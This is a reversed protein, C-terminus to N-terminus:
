HCSFLPSPLHEYKKKQPAGAGFIAGLVSVGGPQKSRRREKKPRGNPVAEVGAPMPGHGGPAFAFPPVPPGPPRGMPVGPQMMPPRGRMRNHNHIWERAQEPSLNHPMRVAAPGRRIQEAPWMKMTIQWGPQVTSDWIEKLILEGEPGELDYHGELVHPGVSDIHVFAQNILGEM